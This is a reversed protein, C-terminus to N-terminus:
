PAPHLRSSWPCSPALRVSASPPTARAAWDRRHGRAHNWADTNEVRERSPEAQTAPLPFLFPFLARRPTNGGHFREHRSGSADHEPRHPSKASPLHKRIACNCRILAPPPNHRGSFSAQSSHAILLCGHRSRGRSRVPDAIEGAAM